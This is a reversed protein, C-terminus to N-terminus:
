KSESEFYEVSANEFFRCLKIDKLAASKTKYRTALDVPAIGAGQDTVSLYGGECIKVKWHSEELHKYSYNPLYKCQNMMELADSSGYPVRYKVVETGDPM